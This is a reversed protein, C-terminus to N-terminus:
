DEEVQTEEYEEGHKTVEAEETVTLTFECGCDNCICDYVESSYYDSQNESYAENCEQDVDYSRCEPCYVM